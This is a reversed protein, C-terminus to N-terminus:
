MCGRGTSRSMIRARAYVCVCVCVCVCVQLRDAKVEESIQNEWSAAPTNPRPSRTRACESYVRPCLCLCLVCVSLCVFCVCLCLSLLRARSRALSCSLPASISAPLCRYSATNVTDFKVTKMLKLSNLSQEETEGPFGVIVDATIAADPCLSRIREVIQGTTHTRAIWCACLFMFLRIISKHTHATTRVTHADAHTETEGIVALDQHLQACPILTLM